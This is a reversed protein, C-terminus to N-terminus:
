GRNNLEKEIEFQMKREGRDVQELWYDDCTAAKAILSLKGCLEMAGKYSGDFNGVEKIVAESMGKRNVKAGYKRLEAIKMSVESLRKTSRAM